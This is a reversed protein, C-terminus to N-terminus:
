HRFIGAGFYEEIQSFLNKWTPKIGGRIKNFDKKNANLLVILADFVAIAASLIRLLNFFPRDDACYFKKTGANHSLRKFVNNESAMEVNYKCMRQLDFGSAEIIESHIINRHDFALKADRLVVRFEPDSSKVLVHSDTNRVKRFFVSNFYLSDALILDPFLHGLQQKSKKLIAYSTPLEKWRKGCNEIM